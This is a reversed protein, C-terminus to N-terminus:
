RRGLAQALPWRLRLHDGQRRPVATPGSGQRGGQPHLEGPGAAARGRQGQRRGLFMGMKLAAIKKRDRVTISLGADKAMKKAELALATPTMTGAPENVLDRAWNTAEGVM